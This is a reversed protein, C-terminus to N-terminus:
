PWFRRACFLFCRHPWVVLTSFLSSFPVRQCFMNMTSLSTEHGLFSKEILLAPLCLRNLRNLKQCAKSIGFKTGFHDYGSELLSPPCKPAQLSEELVRIDPEMITSPLENCERFDSQGLPQIAHQFNFEYSKHLPCIFRKARNHNTRKVRRHSNNFFHGVLSFCVCM